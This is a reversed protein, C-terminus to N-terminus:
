DELSIHSVSRNLTQFHPESVESVDSLMSHVSVGGDEGSHANDFAAVPPTPVTWYSIESGLNLRHLNAALAIDPRDVAMIVCCHSFRFQDHSALYAFIIIQNQHGRWVDDMFSSSWFGHCFRELSCWYTDSKQLQKITRTMPYHAVVSSLCDLRHLLPPYTELHLVLTKPEESASFCSQGQGCRRVDFSPALLLVQNCFGAIDPLMESSVVLGISCWANNISFKDSCQRNHM